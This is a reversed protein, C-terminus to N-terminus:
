CGLWVPLGRGFFRVGRLSVGAAGCPAVEGFALAVQSVVVLLSGGLVGLVGLSVRLGVWPLPVRGGFVVVEWSM